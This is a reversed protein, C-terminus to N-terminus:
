DDKKRRRENLIITVLLSIGVFTAVIGAKIFPVEYEFYIEHTGSTLPIGIFTTNVRITDVKNGDVYAKWGITYPTSIQLIGDTANTIRGKIHSSSYNELTFPNQNLKQISDRYVNMPVAILKIADYTYYGGSSLRLMVTGDLKDKYGLKMLINPNEIYYACTNKDQIIKTKTTGKYTTVIKYSYDPVYSAISSNISNYDEESRKKIEELTYPHYELNEFYVYLESDYVPEMNLELMTYNSKGESNMKLNNGYIVRNETDINDSKKIDYKIEKTSKNKIKEALTQDKSISYDQLEVEENITTTDLLAQEKELGNLSNYDEQSMINDYFIGLPLAYNNEYILTPNNKDKKNEISEKVIYGYPVDVADKKATIFYKTALLTTIKTRSDLSRFPNMDQEYKSNQIEKSLMGEYQNGISLYCNPTKIGFMLSPMKKSYQTYSTRYFDKDKKVKNVAKKFGEIRHNYTNYITKVEGKTKFQEAYGKDYNGSNYLNASIIYINSLIMVFILIYVNKYLFQLIKNNSNKLFRQTIFIVFLIGYATMLSKITANLYIDKCFILLIVYVILSILMYLQQRGNYNLNKDLNLVVLYSLMFALGYSWRNSQFSFGNMLSGFFVFCLMGFMIISTILITRNEKNKWNYISIPIILLIISSVGILSWYEFNTTILGTILNQYYTFDYFTPDANGLRNSNIFAYITPLLVIGAILIGIIYGLVAQGLRKFLFKIVKDRETIFYRVLAYIVGMITIMYLFYYNVIATLATMIAFCSIKNKKFISDIGILFLPFMIAANTFYPHRVGAFLVYGCFAYMFAGILSQYTNKENYKCYALFALGVCYIRLVVLFNYAVELNKMPFLLSLYAFPDGLIFYSYQGIIDLGIGSEWSFLPIGNEFMNRITTNFYQFIPFHQDVADAHWIFTKGTAIFVSFVCLSFIAFIGTYYLYPKLKIVKEKM